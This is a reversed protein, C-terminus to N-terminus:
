NPVKRFKTPAGFKKIFCVAEKLTAPFKLGGRRMDAVYRESRNLAGALEKSTHFLKNIKQIKTNM